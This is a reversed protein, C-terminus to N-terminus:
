VPPLPPLSTRFLLTSPTGRVENSAFDDLSKVVDLRESTISHLVQGNLIIPGEKAPAQVAQVRASARAARPASVKRAFARQPKV